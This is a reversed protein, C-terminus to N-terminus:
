RREQSAFASGSRTEDQLILARVLTFEESTMKDPAGGRELDALLDAGRLPEDDEFLSRRWRDVVPTMIRAGYPLGTLIVLSPLLFPRWSSEARRCLVWGSGFPLCDRFIILHRIFRPLSVEGAIVERAILILPLRWVSSWVVFLGAVALFFLATWIWGTREHEIRVQRFFDANRLAHARQSIM